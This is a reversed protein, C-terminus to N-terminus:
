AGVGRGCLDDGLQFAAEAAGPVGRMVALGEAAQAMLSILLGERESPHTNAMAKAVFGAARNTTQLTSGDAM